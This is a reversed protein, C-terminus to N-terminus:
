HPCQMALSFASQLDFLKCQCNFNMKDGFQLSYLECLLSLCLNSFNLKLYLQHNRVMSTIYINKFSMSKGLLPM